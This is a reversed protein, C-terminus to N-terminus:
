FTADSVMEPKGIGDLHFCKRNCCSWAVWCPYPTSIRWGVGGNSLSPWHKTRSLDTVFELQSWSPGSNPGKLYNRELASCHTSARQLIWCCHAMGVADSGWLCCDTQLAASFSMLFCCPSRQLTIWCISNWYCSAITVPLAALCGLKNCVFTNKLWANTTFIQKHNEKTKNKKKEEKNKNKNKIKHEQWKAAARHHIGELVDPSM